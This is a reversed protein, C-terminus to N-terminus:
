CLCLVGCYPGLLLGSHLYCPVTCCTLLACCAFLAIYYLLEVCCLMAVAQAPLVCGCFAMLEGMVVLAAARRLPSSWLPTLACTFGLLIGAALGIVISLPGHAIQLGLDQHPVALGTCSCVCVCLTQQCTRNAAKSNDKTHMMCTLQPVHDFSEFFGQLLSLMHVSTMCGFTM